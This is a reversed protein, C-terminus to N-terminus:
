SYASLAILSNSRSDVLDLAPVQDRAARRDADDRQQEAGVLVLQEAQGSFLL